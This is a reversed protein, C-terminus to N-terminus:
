SYASSASNILVIKLDDAMGIGGPNTESAMFKVSMTLIDNRKRSYTVDQITIQGLSIQLASSQGGGSAMESFTFIVPLRQLSGASPGTTTGWLYQNVQGGFTNDYELTFSGDVNVTTASIGVVFRGGTSGWHQKQNQKLSISFDAVDFPLANITSSGGAVTGLHAFEFFPNTSFTPSLSASTVVATQGLVEAKVTLFDGAKCSLDLQNVKCGVFTQLSGQGDDAAFSYSNLPNTLSFKHAFLTGSASVTDTGMGAVLLPGITDQDALTEITGKVEVTGIGPAPNGPSKRVATNVLLKNSVALDHSTFPIYSTSAVPVGYTAETAIGLATKVGATSTRQTTTAM